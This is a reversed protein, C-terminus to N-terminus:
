AMGPLIDWVDSPPIRIMSLELEPVLASVVRDATCYALFIVPLSSIVSTVPFSVPATQSPNGLSSIRAKIPSIWGALTIM